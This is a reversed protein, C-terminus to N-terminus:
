SARRTEWASPAGTPLSLFRAPVIRLRDHPVLIVGLDVPNIIRDPSATADAEIEPWDVMQRAVETIRGDSECRAFLVVEDPIGSLEVRGFLVSDNATVKGWMGGTPNPALAVPMREVETGNRYTVVSYERRLPQGATLEVHVVPQAGVRDLGFPPRWPNGADVRLRATVKEQCIDPTQAFAPSLLWLAAIWGIGHLAKNL